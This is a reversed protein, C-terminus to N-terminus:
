HHIMEITVYNELLLMNLGASNRSANSFPRPLIRMGCKFVELISTRNKALFPLHLVISLCVSTDLFLAISLRSVLLAPYSQNATSSVSLRNTQRSIAPAPKNQSFIVAPQNSTAPKKQSFLVTPQHSSLWAFLARTGERKSSLCGCCSATCFFFRSAPVGCACVCAAAVRRPRAAAEQRTPGGRSVLDEALAPGV